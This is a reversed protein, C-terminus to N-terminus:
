AGRDASTCRGDAGTFRTPRRPNSLPFQSLLLEAAMLRWWLLGPLGDRSGGRILMRGCFSCRRQWCPSRLSPQIGQARRAGAKDTTNRGITDLLSRLSANSPHNVLGPLKWSQGDVILEDASAASSLTARLTLASKQTPIVVSLAFTM